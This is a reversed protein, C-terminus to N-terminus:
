VASMTEKDGHWCKAEQRLFVFFLFLLFAFLALFLFHRNGFGFCRRKVDRWWRRWWLWTCSTSNTIGGYAFLFGCNGGPWHHRWRQRRRNRWFRHNNRRHRGAFCYFRSQRRGGFWDRWWWGSRKSRAGIWRRRRWLHCGRNRWLDPCCRGSTFHLQRRWFLFRRM